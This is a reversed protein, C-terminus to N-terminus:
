ADPKYIGVMRRQVVSDGYRFRQEIDWRTFVLQISTFRTNPVDEPRKWAHRAGFHYPASFGDLLWDNQPFRRGSRLRQRGNEARQYLFRLVERKGDPPLFEFRGLPAGLEEAAMPQFVRADVEMTRGHEDTAEVIWGNMTRARVMHVLAWNTFPWADIQTDPPGSSIECRAGRLM